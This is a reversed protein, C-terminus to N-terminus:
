IGREDTTFTTPALKGASSMPWLTVLYEREDETKGHLKGDEIRCRLRPPARTGAATAKRMLGEVAAENASLPEESPGSWEAQMLCGSIACVVKGDYKAFSSPLKKRLPGDAESQSMPHKKGHETMCCM